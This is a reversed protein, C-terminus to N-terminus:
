HATPPPASPEKPKVRVVQTEIGAQTLQARVVGMDEPKYYPGVRVRHLTGKDPSELRQVSAEIGMLALQAKINDVQSPDSFAGLQLYFKDGTAPAAPVDPKPAPLQAQTGKPLLCYFEFGNNEGKECDASAAGSANAAPTSAATSSADPAPPKAGIQPPPPVPKDGPKGGLPIPASGGPLPPKAQGNNDVFPPSKSFYWALAAAILVGIVLGIFVGVLTSGHSSQKTNQPRSTPTRSM